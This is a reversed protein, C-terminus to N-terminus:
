WCKALHQADHDSGCIIVKWIEKLISCIASVEDRSVQSELAQRLNEEVKTAKTVATGYKKRVVSVDKGLAAEEPTQYQSALKRIQNELENIRTEGVQLEQKVAKAKELRELLDRDSGSVDDVKTIRERLTALWSTVHGIQSELSERQGTFDVMRSDLNEALEHAHAFQGELHHQTDRLSPIETNGNVVQLSQMRKCLSEFSDEYSPLESQFFFTGFSSVHSSQTLRVIDSYLFVTSDSLSSGRIYLPYPELFSIKFNIPVGYQSSFFHKDVMVQM